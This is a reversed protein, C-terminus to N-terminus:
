LILLGTPQILSTKCQTPVYMELIVIADMQIKSLTQTLKHCGSKPLLITVRKDIQSVHCSTGRFCM